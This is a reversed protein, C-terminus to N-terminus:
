IMRRRSTCKRRATPTFFFRFYRLASINHMKRRITNHIQGIYSLKLMWLTSAGARDNPFTNYLRQKPTGGFPQSGFPQMAAGQETGVSDADYEPDGNDIDGDMYSEDGEIPDRYRVATTYRLKNRHRAAMAQEFPRADKRAKQAHMKRALNAWPTSSSSRMNDM